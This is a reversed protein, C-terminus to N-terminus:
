VVLRRRRDPAPATVATLELVGACALADRRPQLRAVTYLAILVAPGAIRHRDWAIAPIQIALIWGFVPIPWIRRVVLPAAMVALVVLPAADLASHPDKQLLNPVALVMALLTVLVDFVWRRAPRNAPYEVPRFLRM